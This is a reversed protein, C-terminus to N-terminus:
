EEKKIPIGNNPKVPEYLGNTNKYQEYAQISQRGALTNKYNIKGVNPHTKRNTKTNNLNTNEKVNYLKNLIMYLSIVVYMPFAVMYVSILLYIM